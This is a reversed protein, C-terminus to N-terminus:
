EDGAQMQSVRAKLQKIERQLKQMKGEMKEPTGATDMANRLKRIEEVINDLSEGVQTAEKVMKEM